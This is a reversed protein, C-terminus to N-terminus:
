FPLGDDEDGELGPYDGPLDTRGAIDDISDGAEMKSVKWAELTNFYRKEGTNKDLWERGRLNFTVELKEGVRFKDLEGCRDQTFQFVIYQPYMPNDCYEIVFDRKKFKDSVSQTDFKVHLKGEIVM